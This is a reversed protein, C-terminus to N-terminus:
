APARTPSALHAHGLTVALAGEGVVSAVCKVSGARVDGAAFGGPTSTELLAPPRELPWGPSVADAV